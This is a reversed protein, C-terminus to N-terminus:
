FVASLWQHQICKLTPYLRQGDNKAGSPVIDSRLVLCQLIGDFGLKGAYDHYTPFQLGSNRIMTESSSAMSFWCREKGDWLSEKFDTRLRPAFNPQFEWIYWESSDMAIFSRIQMGPIGRRPSCTGIFNECTWLAWKYINLQQMQQWYTTVKYRHMWSQKCLWSLLVQIYSSFCKKCTCVQHLWPVWKQYLAEHISCSHTGGALM